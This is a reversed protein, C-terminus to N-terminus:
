NVIGTSLMGLRAARPKTPGVLPLGAVGHADNIQGTLEGQGVPHTPGIPIGRGLPLAFGGSGGRKCHEGAICETAPEKTELDFVPLEERRM